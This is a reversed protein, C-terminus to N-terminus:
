DEELAGGSEEKNNKFATVADVIRQNTEQNDKKKIRRNMGGRRRPARVKLVCRTFRVWCDQFHQNDRNKIRRNMGGRRRPAEVKLM